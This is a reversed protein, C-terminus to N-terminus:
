STPIAQDTSVWSTDPSVGHLFAELAAVLRPFVRKKQLRCTQRLSLMREVFRDGKDGRTGFSRKRWIVAYRLTREALNNTPDVDARHMFFRLSELESAIRRLLKGLDNDQSAYKNIIRQMRACHACWEDISTPHRKMRCLRVLENKLWNAPKAISQDLRESLGKAKRILHALCTQRGHAWSAYVVYDDSVMAGQWSGILEHFAEKSRTAQVKFYAAQQNCLVWLWKLTKKQKWPTEDVHNVPAAHVSNKIAEYDPEISSSTRDLVKQIGGQSMHLGFVSYLLDQATRRSNGNTGCIEATYASLRPGYGTRLDLPITAKVTKGCHVCRGRHLLAHLVYLQIKPLEIYQHVYYPEVQDFTTCGCACVEPLYEKVDTPRLCQQRSGVRKRNKRTKKPADPRAIFPSDSSPPKNSNTSNKNLKIKLEEVQAQLNAVLQRLMCIEERLTSIEEQQTSIVEQQRLLLEIGEQPIRNLIEPALPISAYLNTM